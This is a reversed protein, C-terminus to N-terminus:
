NDNKMELLAEICSNWGYAFVPDCTDRSDLRDPVKTIELKEAANLLRRILDRGYESQPRRIEATAERLLEAYDIM